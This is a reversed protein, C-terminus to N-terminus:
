LFAFDMKFSKSEDKNQLTIGFDVFEEPDEAHEPSGRIVDPRSDRLQRIEFNVERNPIGLAQVSVDAIAQVAIPEIEQVPHENVIRGLPDRGFLGELMGVEVIEVLGVKGGFRSLEVNLHRLGHAILCVSGNKDKM